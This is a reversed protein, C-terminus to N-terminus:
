GSNSPGSARVAHPRALDLRLRPVPRFRTQTTGAPRFGVATYFGMAEPDASVWVTRVGSDAARALMDEVLRRAVGRRMRDPAVFLDELEWEDAGLPVATAFGVPVGEGDVAVRTRGAAVTEGSWELCEPDALLAARDEVNSLSSARFLVRLAEVDGGVATRM